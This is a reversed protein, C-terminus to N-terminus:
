LSEVPVRVLHIPQEINLRARIDRRKAYKDLLKKLNAKKYAGKQTRSVKVIDYRINPFNKKNFGLKLIQDNRFNRILNKINGKHAAYRQQFNDLENKTLNEDNLIKVFKQKMLQTLKNQSLKGEKLKSKYYNLENQTFGPGLHSVNPSPSPSKEFMTNLERELKNADMKMQILLDILEKKKMGDKLKNSGGYEDVFTRLNSIKFSDMMRSRGKRELKRTNPLIVYNLFNSEKPSSVNRPKLKKCLDSKSVGAWAIGAKEAIKRLEDLTFKACDFKGIPLIPSPSKVPSPSMAIGFITRVSNPVRQGHESYAKIVTARGKSIDKPIKYLKLLGGPGPRMYMGNPVKTSVNVSKKKEVKNKLTISNTIGLKTKVNLPVNVGINAYARLVKQRVFAPNAPIEYFRPVKNPGPRVYFGPKTHTWSNAKNYRLSAMLERKKALDKRAPIPNKNLSGGYPNRYEDLIAKVTTEIGKLDRGQAVVTGNYFISIITGNALKIELKSFIEPEFFMKYQNTKKYQQYISKMNVYKKLYFRVATNVVEFDISKIRPVLRSLLRYLVEWNTKGSLTISNKRLVALGSATSFRVEVRSLRSPKGILAGDHSKQVIPDGGIAKTFGVLSKIDKPLKENTFFGNLELHVQGKESVASQFTITM